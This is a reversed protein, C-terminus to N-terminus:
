GLSRSPLVDGFYGIKHRSLRLVKVWDIERQSQSSQGIVKATSSSRSLSRTYWRALYLNNRECTIALCVPGVSHKVQVVLITPLLHLQRQLGEYSQIRFRDTLCGVLTVTLPPPPPPPLEISLRCQEVAAVRRTVSTKLLRWGPSSASCSVNRSYLAKRRMVTLLVSSCVKIVSAADLQLSLTVTQRGDTRRLSASLPCSLLRPGPLTYIWLLNM